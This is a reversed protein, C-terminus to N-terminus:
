EFDEDEWNEQIKDCIIDRVKPTLKSLASESLRYGCERIHENFYEWIGGFEYGGTFFVNRVSLCDLCTKHTFIEGDCVGTYKEYKKGPAIARHCEYCKHQKRAKVMRQSLTTSYEDIDIPVTACDM